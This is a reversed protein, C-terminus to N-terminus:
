RVLLAQISEEIALAGPMLIGVVGSALAMCEV